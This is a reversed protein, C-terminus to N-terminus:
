KLKEIKYSSIKAVENDSKFLVELMYSAVALTSINVQETVVGQSVETSRSAIIRGAMDMLRYSLLGRSVSTYQLNVVTSAPNPFVQLHGALSTSPVGETSPNNQLVGQTITVASSYFTAVMSMEGISWDYTNGSIAGSGGTANVTAPGISQGHAQLLCLQLGILIFCRKM